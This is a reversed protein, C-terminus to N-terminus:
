LISALEVIALANGGAAKTVRQAVDLAVLSGSRTALVELAAGADLPRLVLQRISGAEFRDPRAALLMVVGEVELRRAVFTLARASDPDLWHADDILCLVPQAVSAEGLLTLVGLAVRYPDSAGGERMGFAGRLAAAQLEPLADIRGVWPLVLQHLSAFPLRAESEVGSAQLVTFGDAAARADEFLASKGAGAEGILLVADSQGERAASLLALLQEQEPERGYLM